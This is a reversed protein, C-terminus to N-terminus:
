GPAGYSHSRLVSGLTNHIPDTKIFNAENLKSCDGCDGRGEEVASKSAFVVYDSPFLINVKLWETDHIVIPMFRCYAKNKLIYHHSLVAIVFFTKHVKLAAGYGTAFSM